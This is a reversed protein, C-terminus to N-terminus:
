IGVVGQAVLEAIHADTLGMGRLIDQTQAGVPQPDLRKGVKQGDFEIPLAATAVQTGCPMTAQILAGGENLHPDTLLDHPQRIPGYSLGSAELAACLEVTKWHKLIEAVAPVLWPRAAERQIATRLREDTSWGDPLFNRCFTQWNADSVVAVFVRGDETDFIDYVGWPPTRKDGMPIPPQGSLQYQAIFQSVLLLNNEFLGARVHRGRGTRHRDNLAALAGVVGFTGGLIDNVSPAVRQPAGTSGNIYAMGGMMQVVEDLATRHKYPGSLFGKLSVYILGPNEASLSAYDLGYQALSDDRFNEILMDSALALRRVLAQGEASKLDVALSQKNRSFVPFYGIGSGKLRRTRDGDLPEVKIVEAGLDALVLGGAPGMIMHSLELVKIGRLPLEQDPLFTPTDNTM